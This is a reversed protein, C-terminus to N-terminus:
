GRPIADQRQNFPASPPRNLRAAIPAQLLFQQAHKGGGVRNGMFALMPAGTDRIVVSHARGAFTQSTALLRRDVFQEQYSIEAYGFYRDIRRRGRQVKGLM